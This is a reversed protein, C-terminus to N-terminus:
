HLQKGYELPLFYLRSTCCTPYCIVYHIAQFFLVDILELSSLCMAADDGYNFVLIYIDLSKVSVNQLHTRQAVHTAAGKM